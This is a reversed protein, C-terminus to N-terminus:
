DRPDFRSWGREKPCEVERYTSAGTGARVLTYDFCFEITNVDGRM